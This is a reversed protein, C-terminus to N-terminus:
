DALELELRVISPRCGGGAARACGYPLVVGPSPRQRAVVFADFGKTSAEAALPPVPGLQIWLGEPVRAIANTYRLGALKPVTVTQRSGVGTRPSPIPSSSIRVTVATGAPVRAPARPSQVRVFYGDLGVGAPQPPFHEVEVRLDAALLREMAVGLSYSANSPVTVHEESGGCGAALGLAVVALCLRAM